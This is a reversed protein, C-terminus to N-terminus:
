GINWYQSLLKLMYRILHMIMRARCGHAFLYNINEM